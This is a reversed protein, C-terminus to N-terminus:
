YSRKNVNSYKGSLRGKTREYKRDDRIPLINAQIFGLIEEFLLQKQKINQIIVFEIVAEKLAGAAINKNITMRHKYSKENTREFDMQAEICMDQIINSLYVAAYIDQEIIIPKTGSFNEIYLRNKLFDFATEINWRLHYLYKIDELDFEEKELNTAFCEMEGNDLTVKVFRVQVSGAAELRDATQTNGNRRHAGVRSKTFEITVEEDLSSMSAQEAKFNSAGVRILFKRNQKSLELFMESSVYGRDFLYIVKRSGILEEAYDMQDLACQRENFKVRNITTGVIMMNLVDFMCGLGLQAQPKTGNRSASGFKNINEDNNPLNIGSGDSALVIYGCLLKVMQADKYFNSARLDALHKLALPNLKQRQKSYGAKSISAGKRGIQQFFTKLEMVLTKGKRAIISLALEKLPLKRNRTFHNPKVRCLVHFDQKRVEQLEMMARIFTHKM